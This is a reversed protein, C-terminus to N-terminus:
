WSCVAWWGFKWQLCVYHCRLRWLVRCRDRIAEALGGHFDSWITPHEIYPDMGPFPSPM